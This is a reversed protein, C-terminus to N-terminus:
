SNTGLRRYGYIRAMFITFPNNLKIYVMRNTPLVGSNRIPVNSLGNDASIQLVEYDTIIESYMGGYTNTGTDTQTGSVM